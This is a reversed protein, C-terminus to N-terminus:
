PFINKWIEIHKRMTQKKDVNKTRKVTLNKIQM